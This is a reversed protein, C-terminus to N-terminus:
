ADPAGAPVDLFLARVATPLPQGPAQAVALSTPRTPAKPAGPAETQRPSSPPSVLGVEKRMRASEVQVMGFIAHEVNQCLLPRTPTNNLRQVHMLLYALMADRPSEDAITLNEWKKPKAM